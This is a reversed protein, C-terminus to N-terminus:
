KDPLYAPRPPLLECASPAPLTGSVERQRNILSIAHFPFHAKSDDKCNHNNTNHCYNKQKGRLTPLLGVVETFPNQFVDKSNEVHVSVWCPM